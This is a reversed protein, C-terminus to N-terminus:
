GLLRLGPTHMACELAALDALADMWTESRAQPRVHSSVARCLKVHLAM